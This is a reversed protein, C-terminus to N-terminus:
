EKASHFLCDVYVGFTSEGLTCCPRLVNMVEFLVGGLLLELEESCRFLGAKESLRSGLASYM